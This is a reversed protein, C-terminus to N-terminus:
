ERRLRRRIMGNSALKPKSLDELAEFVHAIDMPNGITQLADFSILSLRYLKFKEMAAMLRSDGEPSFDHQGAERNMEDLAELYLQYMEQRNM